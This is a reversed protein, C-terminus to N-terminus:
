IDILETSLLKIIKNNSNELKKIKKNADKIFQRLSAMNALKLNNSFQAFVKTIDSNEEDKSLLYILQEANSNYKFMNIAKSWELLDFFIKFNVIESTDGSFLGYFVGGINISPTDYISIFELLFINLIPMYRFGHTIDLFVEDGNNLIEKITLLIEFNDWIEDSNHKSYNLIISYSGNGNLYKDVANNLGSLDDSSIGKDESKKCSLNDLYNEDAGDFSYYLNDWMSKNTGIFIVKDIDLHKVLVKATLTEPYDKGDILYITPKYESDSDKIISGTGVSSILIKAM